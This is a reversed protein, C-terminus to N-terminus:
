LIELLFLVSMETTVKSCPAWMRSKSLRHFYRGDPADVTSPPFFTDRTNGRHSRRLPREPLPCGVKVDQADTSHLTSTTKYTNRLSDTPSMEGM